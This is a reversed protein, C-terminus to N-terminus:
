KSAPGAPEPRVTAPPNLRLNVVTTGNPASAQAIAAPGGTAAAGFGCCLAPFRPDDANHTDPYLAPPPANSFLSLASGARRRPLPPLSPPAVRITSLVIRTAHLRGPVVWPRGRPVSDCDDCAPLSSGSGASHRATLAAASHIHESRDATGSKCDSRDRVLTSRPPSDSASVVPIAAAPRRSIDASPTPVAGVHRAALAIDGDTRASLSADPNEAQPRSQVARGHRRIGLRPSPPARHGVVIEARVAGQVETRRPAGLGRATALPPGTGSRRRRRFAFDTCGGCGGKQRAVVCAGCEWCFFSDAMIGSSSHACMWRRCVCSFHVTCARAFCKRSCWEVIRRASPCVSPTATARTLGLRDSGKKGKM